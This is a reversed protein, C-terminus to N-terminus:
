RQIQGCQMQMEQSRLFLQQALQAVATGIQADDFSSVSEFM